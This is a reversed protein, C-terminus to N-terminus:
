CHRFRSSPEVTTRGMRGEKTSAEEGGASEMAERSGERERKV